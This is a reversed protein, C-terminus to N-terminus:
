SVERRPNSRDGYYLLEGSFPREIFALLRLLTSKGCGNPGTLAVAEGSEIVLSIKPLATRQQYRQELDRAEYVASM